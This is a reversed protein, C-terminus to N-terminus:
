RAFVSIRDVNSVLMGRREEGDGTLCIKEVFKIIYVLSVQVENSFSEAEGPNPNFTHAAMGPERSCKPEKSREAIRLLFSILM